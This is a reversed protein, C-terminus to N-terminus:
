GGMVEYDGDSDQHYTDKGDREMMEIAKEFAEQETDAEVGEVLYVEKDTIMLDFKPM